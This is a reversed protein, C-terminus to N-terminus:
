KELIQQDIQHPLIGNNDIQYDAKLEMLFLLNAVSPTSKELM